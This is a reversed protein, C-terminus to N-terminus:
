RKREENEKRKREREGVRGRWKEGEGEKKECVCVCVITHSVSIFRSHSLVRSHPLHTKPRSHHLKPVTSAPGGDHRPPLSQATSEPRAQHSKEERAKSKAQTVKIAPQPNTRTHPQLM